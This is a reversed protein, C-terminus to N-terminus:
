KKAFLLLMFRILRIVISKIWGILGSQNVSIYRQISFWAILDKKYFEYYKFYILNYAKYAKLKSKTIRNDENHNYSFGKFNIGKIKYFRSIRLWMDYDQRAPMNVDFMGAKEFVCKKILPNSTSGILDQRLLEEFTPNEVFYKCTYYEKEMIKGKVTYKDIGTCFVLGVEETDEAFASLQKEIKHPFWEDDDDLFAIFDGNSNKIGINRAYNAGTNGNPNKIYRVNDYKLLLNKIELSIPNLEKREPISFPNDDVVIIEEVRYTQNLVSLLAKLVIEAKRNYTTIIATVM